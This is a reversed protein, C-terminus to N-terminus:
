TPEVGRRRCGVALGALHLEGKLRALSQAV